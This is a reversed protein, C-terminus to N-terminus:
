YSFTTRFSRCGFSNGDVGIRIEWLEDTSVLKKMYNAPVPELDRVARLVWAIKRATKDPLTDFHERV